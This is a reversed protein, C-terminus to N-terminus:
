LAQRWPDTLFATITQRMTAWLAEDNPEFAAWTTSQLISDRLFCVLRRVNLYRYDSDGPAALTRAGWVMSGRGPFTRLGNIGADNLPGQEGDSLDRGLGTIEKIPTNAPAKHVGHEADTRAWIGVIHGCPPVQRAVGDLGPVKVWPYYM